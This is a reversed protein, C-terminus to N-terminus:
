RLLLTLLFTGLVAVVSVVSVWFARRVWRGQDELNNAIQRLLDRTEITAQDRQADRKFKADMFSTDIPEPIKFRPVGTIRNMGTVSDALTKSLGTNIRATKFAASALTTTPLTVRHMRAVSDAFSKSLGPTANFTSKPIALRNMRAVSDALSKSSGLDIHVPRISKSISELSKRLHESEITLASFAEPTFGPPV